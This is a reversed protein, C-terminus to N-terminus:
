GTSEEKLLQLERELERRRQAKTQRVEDKQQEEGEGEDGEMEEVMQQEEGEGEDGEMEEVMQQEEGEGEDGEMEEVMQQEEGEMEDDREEEEESDMVSDPRDLDAFLRSDEPEEDSSERAGWACEFASMRFVSCVM